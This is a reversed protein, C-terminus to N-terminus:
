ENEVGKGLEKKYEEVDRKSDEIFEKVLRGPKKQEKSSVHFPVSPVRTLSGKVGCDCNTLKDSISHSVEFYELCAKCRYTYRPM